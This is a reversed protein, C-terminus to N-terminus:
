HAASAEAQRREARLETEARFWDAWDDGHWGGRQLFRAYARREIEDRAIPGTTGPAPVDGGLVPLDVELVSVESGTRSLADGGNKPKGVASANAM